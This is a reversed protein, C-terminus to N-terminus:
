PPAGVGLMRAWGPRVSRPRAFAASVIHRRASSRDGDRIADIGALLHLRARWERANRRLHGPLDAAHEKFFKDNLRCQEESVIRRDNTLNRAHRCYEVLGEDLYDMKLSRILLELYLKRDSGVVLEEDFPPLSLLVDRRIMVCSMSRVPTSGILLAELIREPSPDWERGPMVEQDLAQQMDHRETRHFVTCGTFSLALQPDSEFHDLQRQLKEPHWLDDHDLFAVYKGTALRVGFNRASAEGGNPKTRWAFSAPLGSALRRLLEETDDTSGDNVVLVETPAATQAYVSDLTEELFESNYAPTIVSVSPAGPSM